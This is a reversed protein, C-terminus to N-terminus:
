LLLSRVYLFVHASLVMVYTVCLASPHPRSARCVCMRGSAEVLAWFRHSVLPLLSRRILSCVAPGMLVPLLPLVCLFPPAPLPVLLPGTVPVYLGVLALLDQLGPSLGCLPAPPLRASLMLLVASASAVPLGSWFFLNFWVPVPFSGAWPFSWLWGESLSVLSCVLSSACINVFGASENVSVWGAFCGSFFFALFLIVCRLGVAFM